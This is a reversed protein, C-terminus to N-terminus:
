QFRPSGQQELTVRVGVAPAKMTTILSQWTPTPSGKRLWTLLVQTLCEGCDRNEKKIAELDGITVSLQIGINFWKSRADWMYKQITRLDNDNLKSTSEAVTAHLICYDSTICDSQRCANTCIM